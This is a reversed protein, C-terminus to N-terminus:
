LTRLFAVLDTKEQASLQDALDGAEGRDHPDRRPLDRYPTARRVLAFM